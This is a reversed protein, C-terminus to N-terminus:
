VQFLAGKCNEQQLTSNHLPPPISSQQQQSRSNSSSESNNIKSNYSPSPRYSGDMLFRDIILRLEEQFLLQRQLLKIFNVTESVSM